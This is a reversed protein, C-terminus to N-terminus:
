LQIIFASVHSVLNFKLWLQGEKGQCAEVCRDFFFSRYGAIIIRWVWFLFESGHYIVLRKHLQVTPWGARRHRLVM